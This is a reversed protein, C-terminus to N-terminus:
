VGHWSDVTVAATVALLVAPQAVTSAASTTVVTDTSKGSLCLLILINATRHSACGTAREVAHQQQASM